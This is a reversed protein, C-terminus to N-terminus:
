KQAVIWTAIPWNIDNKVALKHLPHWKAHPIPNFRLDLWDYFLVHPNGWGGVDIIKSFEKFLLSLANPTFRWFDYPADHIRNLFCTTYIAIGGTKLVRYTEDIARQPDGEVHELVQGCVVFDFSNDSFPLALLNYEPFKTETVEPHEICLMNGLDISDSISLIRNGLGTKDINNLIQELHQYLYYRTIHQGSKFGVGSLKIILRICSKCAKIIM